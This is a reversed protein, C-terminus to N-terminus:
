QLPMLLTLSRPRLCARCTCQNDPYSRTTPNWEVLLRQREGPTLLPLQSLRQEPDAVIGRTLDALAGMRAVTAAEFLTQVTSSDVM